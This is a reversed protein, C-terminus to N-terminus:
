ESTDFFKSKEETSIAETYVYVDILNETLRKDCFGDKYNRELHKSAERLSYKTESALEVSTILGANKMAFKLIFNDIDNILLRKRYTSIKKTLFIMILTLCSFFSLISVSKERGDLYMFFGAVTYISSLITILVVLVYTVTLISKKYNSMKFM